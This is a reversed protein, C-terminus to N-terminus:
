ESTTGPLLTFVSTVLIEFDTTGSAFEVWGSANTSKEGETLIHAVSIRIYERQSAETWIAEVVSGAAQEGVPECERWGSQIYVPHCVVDFAPMGQVYGDWASINFSAICGGPSCGEGFDTAPWSAYVNSPAAAVTASAVFAAIAAIISTRM